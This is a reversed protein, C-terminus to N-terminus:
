HATAMPELNQMLDTSWDLNARIKLLLRDARFGETSVEFGAV